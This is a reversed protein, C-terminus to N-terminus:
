FRVTCVFRCLHCDIDDKRTCCEQKTVPGYSTDYHANYHGYVSYRVVQLYSISDFYDVYKIEDYM